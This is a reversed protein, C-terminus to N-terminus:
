DKTMNNLTDLIEQKSITGTHKIVKGNKIFFLAPITMFDFRKEIEPNEDYNIKVVTAKDRLEEAVENIVPSIKRCWGCWPAWIDLLVVPNKLLEELNKITGIKVHGSMTKREANSFNWIFFGL